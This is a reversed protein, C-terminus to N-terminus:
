PADASSLGEASKTGLKAKVMWLRVMSVGATRQMPPGSPRGKPYGEHLPIGSVQELALNELTRKPQLARQWLASSCPRLILSCPVM